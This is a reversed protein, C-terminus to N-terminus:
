AQKHDCKICYKYSEFMGVYQKFEHSCSNLTIGSLKPPVYVSIKIGQNNIEEIFGSTAWNVLGTSGKILTVEICVYDINVEKILYKSGSYVGTFEQGVALDEAKWDVKENLLTNSMHANWAAKIENFYEQLEKDNKWAGASKLNKFESM